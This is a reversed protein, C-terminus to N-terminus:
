RLLVVKHVVAATATQMLVLYAGSAVAHGADDRGDWVAEHAGAPLSGALLTRILRGAMDHLVLRARGPQDLRFTITTLPNFPNPYSGLGLANAGITAQEDVATTAGCGWGHAGIRVGSPNNVALCPSLGDLTYDGAAADCFLPDLDLNGNTGFQGAIPGIWDGGDNGFIDDHELHLTGMGDWRLGEGAGNFAILTAAVTTTATGGWIVQIGGGAPAQNNALTCGIVSLGLLSNCFVAGGATLATNDALTSGSLSLEGGIAAIAGGETAATNGSFLCNTIVPQGDGSFVAGGAGTAHNGTLICNDIEVPM